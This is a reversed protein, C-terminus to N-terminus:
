WRRCPSRRTPSRATDHEVAPTSAQAQFGEFRNSTPFPSCRGRSVQDVWGDNTPGRPSYVWLSSRRSSPASAPHRGGALGAGRLQAPRALLADPVAGPAHQRPRPQPRPRPASTGAGPRDRKGDLFRRCPHVRIGLGRLLAAADDAMTAASLSDGSLDTRGAGRNDFATLRYRDALGDLQLQWSEVTDGLGGILLVDPGEGVQETWIEFDGAQVHQAM